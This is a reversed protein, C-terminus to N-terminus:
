PTTHQTQNTERPVPQADSQIAAVATGIAGLSIIYPLIRVVLAWVRNSTRDLLIEIAKVRQEVLSTREVLGTTGNGRLLKAIEKTERTNEALASMLQDHKLDCIEASIYEGAM